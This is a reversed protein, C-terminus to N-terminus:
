KEFKGNCLYIYIYMAVVVVVVFTDNHIEQTRQRKRQRTARIHIYIYLCLLMVVVVIMAALISLVSGVALPRVGKQFPTDGPPVPYTKDFRLKQKKSTYTYKKANRKLRGRRRAAHM